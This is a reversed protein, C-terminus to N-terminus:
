NTSAYFADIEEPSQFMSSDDPDYALDRHKKYSSDDKLAYSKQLKDNQSM